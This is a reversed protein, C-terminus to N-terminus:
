GLAGWFRTLMAAARGPDQLMWWHGLGDLVETRAGARGAARRRMDETGVFTDETALVSLGPRTAAHELGSGIEAVAPQAAARYLALIATGM